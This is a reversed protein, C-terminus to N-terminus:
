APCWAAALINALVDRTRAQAELARQMFFWNRMLTADKACLEYDQLGSDFGLGRLVADAFRAVAAPSGRDAALRLVAPLAREVTLVHTSRHHRTVAALARAAEELTLPNHTHANLM